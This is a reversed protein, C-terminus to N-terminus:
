CHDSAPVILSLSMDKFGYHFIDLIVYLCLSFIRNVSHADKDMFTAAM